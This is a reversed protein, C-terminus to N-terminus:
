PRSGSGSVKPPVSDDWTMLLLPVQGHDDLNIARIMDPESYGADRMSALYAMRAELFVDRNIPGAFHKRHM